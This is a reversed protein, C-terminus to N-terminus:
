EERGGCLCELAGSPFAELAGRENGDVEDCEIGVGPVVVELLDVNELEIDLAGFGLDELAGGVEDLGTGNVEDEGLDHDGGEVFALLGEVLGQLHIVLEAEPEVVEVVEGGEFAGEALEIGDKDFFLVGARQFDADEGEVVCGVVACDPLGGGEDVEEAGKVEIGFDDVELGVGGDLGVATEGPSAAVGWPVEEFGVAEPPVEGGM